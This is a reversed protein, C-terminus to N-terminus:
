SILDMERLKELLNQKSLPKVLYGDCLSKFAEMVNRADDLATIMLVKTRRAPKIGAGNELARIEKLAEQGDMEPMMIDLCILHYPDNEEVAKKVATVAEAGTVALHYSGYTKLFEQLIIRNTFDDDVILIKM